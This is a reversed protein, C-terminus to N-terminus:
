RSITANYRKTVLRCSIEVDYSLFNFLFKESKM